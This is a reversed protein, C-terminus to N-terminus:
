KTRKNIYPKHWGLTFTAFITDANNEKNTRQTM